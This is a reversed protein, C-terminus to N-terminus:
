GYLVRMPLWLKAKAVKHVLYAIYISLIYIYGHSYVATTLHSILLTHALCISPIYKTYIFCISFIYISYRLGGQILSIIYLNLM